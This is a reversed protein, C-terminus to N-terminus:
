SFCHRNIWQGISAPRLIVAGLIARRSVGTFSYEAPSSTFTVRVTGRLPDGTVKSACSSFKSNIPLM